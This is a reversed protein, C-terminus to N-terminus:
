HFWLCRRSNEGLLFLSPFHSESLLFIIPFPLSEVWLSPSKLCVSPVHQRYLLSAVVAHPSATLSRTRAPHLLRPRVELILSYGEHVAVRPLKYFREHQHFVRAKAEISFRIPESVEALIVDVAVTM